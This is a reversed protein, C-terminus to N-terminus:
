HKNMHKEISAKLDEYVPASPTDTFVTKIIGNMSIYVRPICASAFLEYVKRDTQASYPMSLGESEWHQEVREPGEERSIMAFTVDQSVYEDYVRQMHPLAKVCDPCVTTFFMICSIGEQLNDTGVKTGDNMTVTFKPLSDGVGLDAGRERDKICATCLVAAALFVACLRGM